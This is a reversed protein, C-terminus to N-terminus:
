QEYLNQYSLTMKTLGHEKRVVTAISEFNNPEEALVLRSSLIEVAKERNELPLLELDPRIKKHAVIDSLVIPLNMSLAELPALPAGEFRSTSIFFQSSAYWLPAFRRPGMLFVFDEALKLKQEDSFYNKEDPGVICFCWNKKLEPPLSKWLDIAYPQGKDESIRGMYLLWNTKKALSAKLQDDDITAYLEERFKFREQANQPFTAMFKVGNPVVHVRNGSVGLRTYDELMHESVVCVANAVQACLYEYIRYRALKKLHIFSHQTHVLKIFGFSFIRVLAAYVFPGLDNSHIVKIKNKLCFLLIYFVTSISFGSKKPRIVVPINLKKYDELLLDQTESNEYALVTPSWDGIQQLTEAHNLMQYELGGTRIFQTLLLVKKDQQM